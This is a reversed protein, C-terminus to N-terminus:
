LPLGTNLHNVKFYSSPEHLYFIYTIYYAQETKQDSSNEGIMTLPLSLHTTLIFAFNSESPCKM